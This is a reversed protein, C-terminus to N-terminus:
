FAGAVVVGSRPAGLNDTVVIVAKGRKLGKGAGEVSATVSAAVTTATGGSSGSGDLCSRSDRFRVIEPISRKAHFQNASTIFRNMTYGNCGGCHDADWSHGFEHASLDTASAFSGNFDSQVVSYAYSQICVTGIWAIGITSGDLNKGTFLQDVDRSVSAQNSNWETRFQNLLAVPDTSTYPQSSSTRVVITTIQNSIGVDREYQLNMTSIVSQIRAAVTNVDSGWRTFYEFDADCALEAVKHSSEMPARTGSSPSGEAGKVAVPKVPAAAVRLRLADAGCTHSSKIVDEARYLVHRGPGAGPAGAPVPQLWYDEGQATQIRATIGRDVLSAAIVTGPLGVAHGRLTRVPEPTQQVISGDAQQILLRYKPSRVSHWSFELLITSEVIAYIRGNAPQIGVSVPLSRVLGLARETQQTALAQDTQALAPAQLMLSSLCIPAILGLLHPRM